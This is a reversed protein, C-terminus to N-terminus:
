SLRNQAAAQAHRRARAARALRQRKEAKAITFTTDLAACVARVFATKGVGAPGEVAIIWPRHHSVEGARDTATQLEATRGVFGSAPTERVPM